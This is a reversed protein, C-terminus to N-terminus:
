TVAPDLAGHRLFASLASDALRAIAVTGDENVLAAGPAPAKIRGGSMLRGNVLVAERGDEPDAISRRTQEGVLATAGDLVCLEATCGFSREARGLATFVGTRQQFSCRLDGLPGLNSQGDDFLILRTM